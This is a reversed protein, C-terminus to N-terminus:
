KGSHLNTVAQSLSAIKQAVKVTHAHTEGLCVRLEEWAKQYYQEALKIKWIQELFSGFIFYMEALDLHHSDGYVTKLDAVAKHYHEGTQKLKGLLRWQTGVARHCSARQLLDEKAAINALLAIAKGYCEIAKKPREAAEWHAAESILQTITENNPKQM